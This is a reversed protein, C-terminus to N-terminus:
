NFIALDRNPAVGFNDGTSSLDGNCENVGDLPTKLALAPSNHSSDEDSDGALM